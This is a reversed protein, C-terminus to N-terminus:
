KGSSRLFSLRDATVGRCLGKLECVGRAMRACAAAEDADRVAALAEMWVGQLQGYLAELRLRHKECRAACIRDAPSTLRVQHVLWRLDDFLKRVQEVRQSFRTLDGTARVTAREEAKASHPPAVSELALIDLLDASLCVSHPDELEQSADHARQAQEKVGTSLEKMRLVTTRALTVTEAVITYRAEFM